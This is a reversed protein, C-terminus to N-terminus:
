PKGASGAKITNGKNKLLEDVVFIDHVYFKNNHGKVIRLRVVLIERRRGIRIPAAILTNKIPKGDFDNTCIDLGFAGWLAVFTSKVLQKQWGPGREGSLSLKILSVTYVFEYM